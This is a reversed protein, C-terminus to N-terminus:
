VQSRELLAHNEPHFNLSGAKSRTIPSRTDKSLPHGIGPSPKNTDPSSKFNSSLEIRIKTTNNRRNLAPFFFSSEPKGSNLPSCFGFSTVSSILLITQFGLPFILLKVVQRVVKRTSTTSPTGNKILSAM